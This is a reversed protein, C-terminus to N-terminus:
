WFALAVPVLMDVLLGSAVRGPCALFLHLFGGSLPHLSQQMCFPLGLTRVDCAGPVGKVGSSLGDRRDLPVLILPDPGTFSHCALPCFVATETSSSRERAGPFATGEPMSSRPCVPPPPIMPPCRSCTGFCTESAAPLGDPACARWGHHFAGM